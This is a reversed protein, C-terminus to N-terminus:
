LPAEVPDSDPHQGTASSLAALAENLRAMHAKKLAALTELWSATDAVGQAHATEALGPYFESAERLAAAMAAALNLRSEGIPQGTMPDADQLMDLHGHAACAASEALESFLRALDLMGEIEAAQAFYAYRQATMSEAAFAAHLGSVLDDAARGGPTHENV